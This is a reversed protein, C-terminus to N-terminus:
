FVEVALACLPRDGSVSGPVEAGLVRHVVFTEEGKRYASIEIQGRDGFFMPRFFEAKFAALPKRLSVSLDGAGSFALQERATAVLSPLRGYWWQDAFECDARGIYVPQTGAGIQEAGATWRNLRARLERTPMAENPVVEDAAFLARIQDDVPAPIADLAPGGTLKIPRAGIRVGIAETAAFRHRVRFILLKGDERLSVDAESAISPASFFTLPAPYDIDARMIVLGMGFKTIMSQLSMDQAALGGLAVAGALRLAVEPHMQHVSFMGTDLGSEGCHVRPM